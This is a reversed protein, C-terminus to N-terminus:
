IIQTVCGPRWWDDTMLRAAICRFWPAIVNEPDNAILMEELENQSVWKVDSVENPNPNLNVDTHIVLCHDIEREIWDQDQRAQYRMKTVFEFKDISVEEPSIGLEQELKRVAANKVGINNTEDKESDSFLSPFLM